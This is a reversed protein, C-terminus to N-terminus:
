GGDAILGHLARVAASIEGDAILFGLNIESASRAIAKPNVKAEALASFVRGISDARGKLEDGVMCVIAMRPYVNVPAIKGLADTAERIKSDSLGSQAILSIGAESTTIMHAVIGLRGLAALAETLIEPVSLLRTSILHFMAVDEKYAVSKAIKKTPVPHALITTGPDGEKFANAVRVPIQKRIAPVLTSPHLVEAGFYALESAEEFSLHPINLASPELSPDATMVGDVNKWIVVEEAGAASAIITASFDSGSRGLTTIEGGADKGIFGTVVPIGRELALKEAIAKEVGPLPAASGFNSDTVLGLDYAALPRAEHGRQSLAGAVVRSSLREGFSLVHDMTRPTLEKLLSIGHLLAELRTLLPDVLGIPVGAGECLGVHLERIANTSIRGAQAGRAADALLDTTNGHASVVVIPSRPIAAEIIDLCRALREPTAITQGGFKYVIM